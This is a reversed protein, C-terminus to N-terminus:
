RTHNQKGVLMLVKANRRDVPEGELVLWQGDEAKKEYRLQVQYMQELKERFKKITVIQKDHVFFEDQPQNNSRRKVKPIFKAAM